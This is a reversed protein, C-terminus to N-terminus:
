QFRQRNKERKKLIFYLLVPLAICITFIIWFENMNDNEQFHPYGIYAMVLSYIGLAFPLVIYKKNKLSM